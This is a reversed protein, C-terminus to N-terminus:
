EIVEKKSNVLTVGFIILAIGIIKIVTLKEDFVFFGILTLLLTILSSTIVFLNSIKGGFKYSLFLSVEFTIGAVVLLIISPSFSSILTSISNQFIFYLSIMIITNILHVLGIIFFPNKLKGFHEEGIHFAVTGILIISILTLFIM